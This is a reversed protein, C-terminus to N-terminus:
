AMPKVSIRSAAYPFFSATNTYKGARPPIIAQPTNKNNTATSPSIPATLCLWTINNKTDKEYINTTIILAPLTKKNEFTHPIM